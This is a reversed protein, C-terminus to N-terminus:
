VKYLFSFMFVWCGFFFTFNFVDVLVQGILEVLQGFDTNVRLFFMMKMVSQLLLVSNLIVWMVMEETPVNDGVFPIINNTTNFLRLVYYTCYVIFMSFDIINWIEKFYGFGADKM